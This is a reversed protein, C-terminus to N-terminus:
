VVHSGDLVMPSAGGADISAGCMVGGNFVMAGPGFARTYKEAQKSLGKAVLRSGWMPYNKADIWHIKRGNIVIPSELLFDPTLLTSSGGKSRLDKETLFEVGMDRLWWAVAEEFATAKSQIRLSNARSGLDSESAIKVDKTLRAPM